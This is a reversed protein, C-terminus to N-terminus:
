MAQSAIRQWPLSLRCHSLQTFLLQPTTNGRAHNFRHLMPTYTSLNLSPSLRSGREYILRHHHHAAGRGDIDNGGGWGVVSFSLLRHFPVKIPVGGEVFGGEVARRGHDVSVCAGGMGLAGRWVRSIISGGVSGQACAVGWLSGGRNGNGLASGRVLGASGIALRDLIRFPPELLLVEM